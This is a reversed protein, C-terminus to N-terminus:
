AHPAIAPTSVSRRTKYARRLRPWFPIGLVAILLLWPALAVVTLVIGKGLSVLTEISGQFARGLSGGFNPVVLPVYDKRDRMSVVVTSYEVQNDWRNLRGKMIEIDARIQRLERRVAMMDEPKASPAHKEYYERLGKEEVEFTKLREKTDYYGESVDQSDARNHLTEGLKVLAAILDKFRAEPVRITWEGSRPAGSEGRVDSSAILANQERILKILEDSAKDFDEVVIDLNATYIIKRPTEEKDEKAADAALAKDAPVGDKAKEEKPKGDRANQYKMSLANSATPSSAGCGLSFLLSFPLIFVISRM